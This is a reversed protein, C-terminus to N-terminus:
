DIGSNIKTYLILHDPVIEYKKGMLTAETMVETRMATDKQSLYLTKM